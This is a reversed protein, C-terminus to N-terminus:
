NSSNILAEAYNILFYGNSKMYPYAMEYLLTANMVSGSEYYQYAKGSNKYAIYYNSIYLCCYCYVSTFVFLIFPMIAKRIIHNRLELKFYKIAKLDNIIISSFFICNCKLQLINSPYSFFSISILSLIGAKFAVIIFPTEGWKKEKNFPDLIFMILGILFLVGIIGIESWVKLFDNFAYYNDSAIKEEGSGKNNKLYDAQYNMYLSEFSDFGHGFIPKDKIMSLTNKWIFLRGDASDKKSYYLAYIIATFITLLIFFTNLKIRWLYKSTIINLKARYNFWLLYFTSLLISFLAGRSFTVIILRLLLIIICYVFTRFIFDFKHRNKNFNVIKLVKCKKLKQLIKNYVEFRISKSILFSLALPFITALYEMYINPNYFSGTVNFVPNFSDV